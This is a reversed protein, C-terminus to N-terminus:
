PSVRLVTTEGEKADVVATKESPPESWHLRFTHKGPSMSVRVLPSAGLKQGGEEVQDCWPDCIVTVFARPGPAGADVESAAGTASASASPLPTGGSASSSPEPSASATARPIAGSSAGNSEPLKKANASGAGGDSPSTPDATRGATGTPVLALGPLDPSSSPAVRARESPPSVATNTRSFFFYAVSTVVGVALILLVVDLWYRRRPQAAVQITPEAARPNPPAPRRVMAVTANAQGGTNLDDDVPAPAGPVSALPLGVIPSAIVPSAEGFPTMPATELPKARPFASERQTEPIGSPGSARDVPQSAKASTKARESSLSSSFDPDTEPAKPLDSTSAPAAIKSVSSSLIVSASPDKTSHPQPPAHTRPAAPAEPESRATEPGLSEHEGSDRVELIPRSHAELAKIEAEHERSFPRTRSDDDAERRPDKHKPKRWEERVVLQSSSPPRPVQKADRTQASAEIVPLKIAPAVATPAENANALDLPAIVPVERTVAEGPPSAIQVYRGATDSPSPIRPKPILHKPPVTAAPSKQFRALLEERSFPATRAEEEEEASDEPLSKITPAAEPVLNGAALAERVLDTSTNPPPAVSMAPADTRSARRFARTAVDESSDPPAVSPTSESLLADLWAELEARKDSWRDGLHAALDATTALPLDRLAVEFALLSSFRGDPSKALARELIPVIPGEIGELARKSQFEAAEHKAEDLTRATHLARGVILDRLMLALSFTIEREGTELLAPSHERRPELTAGAAEEPSLARLSLKTRETGRLERTSDAFWAGGAFTVLVRDGSIHRVNAGLKKRVADIAKAVSAIIQGAAEWRMARGSALIDEVSIGKIYDELVYGLDETARFSLLPVVHEARM